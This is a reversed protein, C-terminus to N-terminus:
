AKYEKTKLADALRVKASGPKLPKPQSAHPSWGSLYIINFSARIRGDPDSFRESYIEAARHIIRRSLGGSSEAFAATEAMGRLDRILHFLTDYRVTLRDIDAVPLAFGARQLLGAMDQLGPLPSVRASVGGTLESEAEILSQRLETLTGGGFLAALFLGDPKLALKSQVLTGPLDNVWHLSLSSTVLDFHGPAFCFQEEDMVVSQVGANRARAAFRESLDTAIVIRDPTEMLAASLVGDHCGLDLCTSFTRSTDALRDLLADAVRRKLFGFDDFSAAARDRRLRLRKRDFLIPPKTPSMASSIVGFRGRALDRKAASESKIQGRRDNTEPSRVKPGTDGSSQAFSWKM